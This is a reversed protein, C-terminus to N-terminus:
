VNAWIKEGILLTNNNHKVELKKGIFFKLPLKKEFFAREKIGKVYIADLFPEIEDINDELFVAINQIKGTKLNYEYWKLDKTAIFFVKGNLFKPMLSKWGPFLPNKVDKFIDDMLKDRMIEETRIDIKYFCSAYKPYLFVGSDTCIPAHFPEFINEDLDTLLIEKVNDTNRNWCCVKNTQKGKGVMWIKEGDASSIGSIGQISVNLKRIRTHTTELNFELIANMCGLPLLVLNNVIVYGETFYTYNGRDRINKEINEIWDTIYSIDMSTMDIKIIVPYSYGFIYVDSQYSIINWFKWENESEKSDFRSEDVPIYQISKNLLDYIAIKDAAGPSFVLKDEVKTICCYLDEEAFSKDEFKKCIKVNYNERNVECIGNKNVLAFWIKGDEEVMNMAAPRLYIENYKGMGKECEKRDDIPVCNLYPINTMKESSVSIEQKGCEIDMESEAVEHRTVLGFDLVQRSKRVIGQTKEAHECLGPM